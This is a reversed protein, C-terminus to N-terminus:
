AQPTVPIPNEMLQRALRKARRYPNVRQLIRVEKIGKSFRISRNGIHLDYPGEAFKAKANDDLNNILVATAKRVAKAKRANMPYAPPITLSHCNGM